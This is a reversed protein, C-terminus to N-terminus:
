MYTLRQSNLSASNLPEKTYVISGYASTSTHIAIQLYVVFITVAFANPIISWIPCTTSAVLLMLAADQALITFIGFTISQAKLAQQAQKVSPCVRATAKLSRQGGKLLFTTLISTKIKCNAPQTWVNYLLPQLWLYEESTHLSTLTYWLLMRIYVRKQNM